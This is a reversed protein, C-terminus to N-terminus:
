LFARDWEGIGFRSDSAADRAIVVVASSVPVPARVRLWYDYPSREIATLVGGGALWVIWALVTASAGMIVAVLVKSHLPTRIVLSASHRRPRHRNCRRPQTSPRKGSPPSRKSCGYRRRM